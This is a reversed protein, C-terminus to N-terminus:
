RRATGRHARALLAQEDGVVFQSSMV